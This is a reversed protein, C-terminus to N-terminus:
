NRVAAGKFCYLAKETRIYIRDGDIVPTAYIKENFKHSSIVSWEPQDAVVSIVGPENAFYVKGDGTM